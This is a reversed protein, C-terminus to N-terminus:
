SRLAEVALVWGGLVLVTFRLSLTVEFSVHSLVQPLICCVCSGLGQVKTSAYPSCLYQVTNPLPHPELNSPLM